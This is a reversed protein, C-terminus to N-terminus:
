EVTKVMQNEFNEKIKKFDEYNEYVRYLLWIIVARVGLYVYPSIVNLAHIMLSGRAHIEFQTFILLYKDPVGLIFFEALTTIAYVILILKNLKKILSLRMSIILLVLGTALTIIGHDTNNNAGIISTFWTIAGFIILLYCVNKFILIGQLYEDFALKADLRLRRYQKEEISLDEIRVKKNHFVKRSVDERLSNNKIGELVKDPFRGSKLEERGLAILIEKDELNELYSNM